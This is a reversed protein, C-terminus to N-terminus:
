AICPCQFTTNGWLCFHFLTLFCRCNAPFFFFASICVLTWRERNGHNDAGYCEGPFGGSFMEAFGQGIKPRTTEDVPNDRCPNYKAACRTRTHAHIYIYEYIRRIDCFFAFPKEEWGRFAEHTHEWLCLFFFVHFYAVVVVVVVFLDWFLLSVVFKHSVTLYLTCHQEWVCHKAAEKKQRAVMSWM